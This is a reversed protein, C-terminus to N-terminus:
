IGLTRAAVGSSGSIACGTDGADKVTYSVAAAAPIAEVAELLLDESWRGERQPNWVVRLVGEVVSITAIDTWPSTGYHPPVAGVRAQVICEGPTLGTVSGDGAGVSCYAELGAKVQYAVAGGQDGVPAEVVPLEAGVRLGAGEGYPNEFTLSQGGAVVAVAQADAAPAANYNGNGAFAVRVPCTGGTAIGTVVGTSADVSCYDEGGDGLSWTAVGLEEVSEALELTGGVRVQAVAGYVNEPVTPVGKDVTIDPSEM